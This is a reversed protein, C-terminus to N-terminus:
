EAPTAITGFLELWEGDEVTITQTSGRLLPKSDTISDDDFDLDKMVYAAYDQSANHPADPSVTITYTGAPIDQGVRYLGSVYPAQPQFDAQDAPIMLMSASSPMFAIVQGNELKAFYNGTYTIAADISYTGFGEPDFLYCESEISPNGQLFYLGEDIDRGVVYVGPAAKGEDDIDCPLDGAAEKIDSLTFGGYYDSDPLNDPDYGYPLDDFDYSHVGDARSHLSDAVMGVTAFGVCGGLGMLFALACGLLVWPWKKAPKPAAAAYPNAPPQPAGYSPQAYPAQPPVPNEYRHQNAQPVSAPSAEGPAQAASAATDSQPNQSPAPHTPGDPDISTVSDAGAASDPTQANPTKACSAATVPQEGHTGKQQASEYPNFDANNRPQNM